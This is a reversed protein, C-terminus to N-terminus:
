FYVCQQSHKCIFCTQTRTQPPVYNAAQNLHQPAYNAAQNQPSTTRECGELTNHQKTSDHVKFIFIILIM